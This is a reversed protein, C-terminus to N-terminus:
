EKPPNFKGCDTLMMEVINFLQEYAKKDGLQPTNLLPYTQDIVKKHVFANRRDRLNILQKANGIPLSRKFVEKYIAIVKHAISFITGRPADGEKEFRNNRILWNGVRVDEGLGLDDYYILDGDSNSTIFFQVFEEVVGFLALFAYSYQSRKNANSLMSFSIELHSKIADSIEQSIISGDCVKSLKKLREFLPRLYLRNLCHRIAGSLSQFNADIYGETYFEPSPKVYYGDAGADLLAKLNWSKNSATFMIVQTGPNISKIKKLVSMGSFDSPQIDKEEDPGNLRLDLFVVDHDGEEILRKYHDSYGEYSDIREPITEFRSCLSLYHSLAFEWGKDAEDDILLFKKGSAGMEIVTRDDRDAISYQARIYKFYLSNLFNQTATNIPMPDTTVRHSLMAAGWINAISHHSDSFNSPARVVFAKLFSSYEEKTLPLLIAERQKIWELLSDLSNVDSTYVARTLLFGAISDTDLRLCEEITNPGIFLIPKNSNKGDQGDLRIHAALRIGSLEGPNTENLSFPLVILDPSYPNGCDDDLSSNLDDVQRSLFSDYDELSDVPQAVYFAKFEIGEKEVDSTLDDPFNSNQILLVKM